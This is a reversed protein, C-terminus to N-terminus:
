QNPQTSSSPPTNKKERIKEAQSWLAEVLISAVAASIIFYGRVGYTSERLINLSLIENVHLAIPLKITFAPFANGVLWVAIFFLPLIVITAKFPLILMDKTLQMIEKDRAELEKLKKEDKKQVAEKYEKQFENMKKQAEKLRKRDGITHNVAASVTAFAAGSFFIIIWDDLGLM